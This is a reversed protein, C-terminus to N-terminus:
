GNEVERQGRYWGLVRREVREFLFALGLGTLGLLAIGSWMEPIAFSRQFQVIAFGLGSSSAFMESIVMLILGISLAQRIGTMVMPMAGPLVLYRLRSWGTIRYSEATEALVPDIARVGAATNLLIPWTCGFVIVVVKMDDGIGMILLLLPVLVPPPLARLFELVPELFIRLTRLSGIVIGLAAGTVVALGLGLVLRGISPLVDNLLRDSLWVEGFTVILDRPRPVFFSTSNLTAIWWIAILLLPLAFM